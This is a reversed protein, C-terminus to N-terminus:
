KDTTSESRTLRKRIADCGKWGDAGDYQETYTLNWGWFENGIKAVRVEAENQNLGCTETFFFYLARTAGLDLDGETEILPQPESALDEPPLQVLDLAQSVNDLMPVIRQDPGPLPVRRGRILYALHENCDHLEAVDREFSNWADRVKELKKALRKLDAPTRQRYAKMIQLYDKTGSGLEPDGEYREYGHGFLWVLSELEAQQGPSLGAFVGESALKSRNSEFDAEFARDFVAAIEEDTLQEHDTM